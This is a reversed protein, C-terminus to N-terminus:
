ILKFKLLDGNILTVNLITIYAKRKTECKAVLSNKKVWYVMQFLHKSKVLLVIEQATNLLEIETNLQAFQNTQINTLFSTLFNQSLSQEGEERFEEQNILAANNNLMVGISNNTNAMKINTDLFIVSSAIM